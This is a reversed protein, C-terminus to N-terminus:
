FGIAMHIVDEMTTKSDFIVGEEDICEVGRNKWCSNAHNVQDSKSMSSFDLHCIGCKSEDAQIIPPFPKDKTSSRADLSSSAQSSALIQTDFTDLVLPLVFPKANFITKEVTEVTPVIEPVQEEPAAYFSSSNQRQSSPLSRLDAAALSPSPPATRVEIENLGDQLQTSLSIDQEEVGDQVRTAGTTTDVTDAPGTTLSLDDNM